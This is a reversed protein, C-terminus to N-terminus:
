LTLRSSYWFLTAEEHTRFWIPVYTSAVVRLNHVLQSKEKASIRVRDQFRLLKILIPRPTPRENHWYIPSCHSMEIVLSTPFNEPASPNIPVRLWLHWTGWLIQPDGFLSSQLSSWKELNHINKMLYANDKAIEKNPSWTFQRWKGQDLTGIFFCPRDLSMQISSLKTQTWILLMETKTTHWGVIKSTFISETSGNSTDIFFFRTPWVIWLIQLAVWTSQGSLDMDHEVRVMLM